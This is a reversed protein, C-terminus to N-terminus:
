IKENKLLTRYQNPTMNMHKKFFTFFYNKTTFGLKDSIEQISIDKDALMECILTLKKQTIYATLSEGTNEKYINRLYNVSLDVKEAIMAVSLNPNYINEEIYEKVEQILETKAFSHMKIELLSAIDEECRKQFHQKLNDLSACALLASTNELPPMSLQNSYEYRQLAADLQLVCRNFQDASYPLIQQFFLDIGERCSESNQMKLSSIIKKDADYPYHQQNPALFELEEYFCINGSVALMARFLAAKATDYSHPLNELETVPEGFGWSLKFLGISDFFEQAKATIKQIIDKNYEEFNCVLITRKSATELVKLKCYPEMLESIVNMIIFKIMNLTSGADETEEELIIEPEALFVLYGLYPFCSDITEMQEATIVTQGAPQDLLRKLLVEVKETKYKQITKDQLVKNNVLNKYISEFFEFDNSYTHEVYDRDKDTDYITQKLKKVPNYIFYSSVVSLLLTVVLYILSYRVILWFTKSGVYPNQLSYMSIYTIGLNPLKNYAVAYKGESDQYTFSGESAQQQQIELYMPHESYDAGFQTTDSSAMVRKDYNLLIIQFDNQEDGLNLLSHYTDYNLNVVMAGRKNVYYIMSLMKKQQYRTGDNYPAERPYCLIPTKSPTLTDIFALLDRDIYNELAVRGSKTLITGTTYNICDLSLIIENMKLFENYFNRAEIATVADYEKEYLVKRVRVNDLMNYSYNFINQLISSNFAYAREINQKNIQQMEENHENQVYNLLLISFFLFTVCSICIYSYLVQKFYSKARFFKKWVAAIRHFVQM